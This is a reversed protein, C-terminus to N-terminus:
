ALKMAVTRAFISIVVIIVSLGYYTITALSLYNYLQMQKECIPEESTEGRYTVTYLKNSPAGNAAEAKCFCALSGSESIKYQLDSWSGYSTKFDNLYLYEYSAM